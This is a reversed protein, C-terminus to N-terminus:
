HNGCTNRTVCKGDMEEFMTAMKLLFDLRPDDPNTFKEREPDNLRNANKSSRINLINWMIFIHIGEMGKEGDLVAVTKENFVNFVLYVKQKEFNNPHLTVCDLKTQKLDSELEAKYNKVLDKWKATFIENTEPDRFELMQMKETM